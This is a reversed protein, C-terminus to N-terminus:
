SLTVLVHLCDFLMGDAVILLINPRAMNTIHYSYSVKPYGFTLRELYVLDESPRRAIFPGSSSM